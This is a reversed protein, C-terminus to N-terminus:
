RIAAGAGPGAAAGVPIRDDARFEDDARGGAVTPEDTSPPEDTATPEDTAAPGTSRHRWLWGIDRGFSWALTTLALAVVAFAAPQPLVGSAAVALAIGQAAAVTKRGFRPPLPARLWPLVIAALVFAYRIAGIALVWGGLSRAVYVSLVLILFADVEMDFRAGLRSTSGTRRAVQGDVGDLLLAVAALGILVPVPAATGTTDAVLATVGGVLTARALTVANAPGLSRTGSRHMARSLLAWTTVGFAIGFLWGAPGVGVVGSLAALLAVQGLLGVSPGHASVTTGTRVSVTM